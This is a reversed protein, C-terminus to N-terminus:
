IKMFVQEQHRGKSALPFEIYELPIIGDPQFGGNVDSQSVLAASLPARQEGLHILPRKVPLQVTLLLYLATQLSPSVSFRHSLDSCYVLLFFYYMDTLM